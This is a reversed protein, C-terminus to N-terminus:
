RGLSRCKRGERWKHGCKRAVDSIPRIYKTLKLNSSSKETPQGSDVSFSSANIIKRWEGQVFASLVVLM